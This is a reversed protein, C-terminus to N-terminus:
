RLSFNNPSRCLIFFEIKISLQAYISCQQVLPRQADYTQSLHPSPFFLMAIVSKTLIIVSCFLTKTHECRCGDQRNRL